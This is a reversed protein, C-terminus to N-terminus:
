PQVRDKRHSWCFEWGPGYAMSYEGELRRRSPNAKDISDVHEWRGGNYRAFLHKGVDGSVSM